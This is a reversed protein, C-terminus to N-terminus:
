GVKYILRPDSGPSLTEAANLEDCLHRVAEDHAAQTRHHPRVTLTKNQADFFLHVDTNYIQRFLARGDEARGSARYGSLQDRANALRYPGSATVWLDCVGLLSTQAARPLLYNVCGLVKVPAHFTKVFGRDPM